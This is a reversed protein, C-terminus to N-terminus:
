RGEEDDWYVKREWKWWLWRWIIRTYVRIGDAGRRFEEGYRVEKRPLWYRRIRWFQWGLEIQLQKVLSKLSKKKQVYCSMEANEDQIINNQQEIM